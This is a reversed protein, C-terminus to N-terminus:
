YPILNTHVIDSSSCSSWKSYDTLISDHYIKFSTITTNLNEFTFFFSANTRINLDFSRVLLGLKVIMARLEGLNNLSDLSLSDNVISYIYGAIISNAIIISLIQTFIVSFIFVLKTIRLSRLSAELARSEQTAQYMISLSVPNNKTGMLFIEHKKEEKESKEKIESLEFRVAPKRRESKEISSKKKDFFKFEVTKEDDVMIYIFKYLAKKGINEIKVNFTKYFGNVKLKVETLEDPILDTYRINQLFFNINFGIINNREMGFVKSFNKSHGCVEGDFNILGVERFDVPDNIACIFNIKRHFGVCEIDILCEVLYNNILLVSYMDCPIRTDTCSKVFDQFYFNHIKAFPTPIFQYFLCKNMDTEALNFFKLAKDNAYIITGHDASNGSIILICSGERHGFATLSNQKSGLYRFNNKNNNLINSTLSRFMEHVLRSHPDIKLATKYSQKTLKILSSTKKTIEKLSSLSQSPDLINKYFMLLSCCLNFDNEKAAM